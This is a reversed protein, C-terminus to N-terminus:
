EIIANKKLPLAACIYSLSLIKVMRARILLMLDSDKTSLEDVAHNPHNAVKHNDRIDRKVLKQSVIILVNKHMM